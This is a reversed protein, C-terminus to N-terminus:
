LVGFSIGQGDFDGSLGSFCEPIGRGTEFSGTLALCKYDLPKEIISPEPIEGGLLAKWTVPGVIGDVGLGDMRQFAKVAAETGGGFEGDIPGMYLGESKLREQIRRVEEGKSGVSYLAMRMWRRHPRRM